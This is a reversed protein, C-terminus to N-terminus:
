LFPKQHYNSEESENKGSRVQRIPKSQPELSSCASTEMQQYNEVPRQSLSTQDRDHSTGNNQIVILCRSLEHRGDRGYRFMDRRAVDGSDLVGMHYLWSCAYVRVDCVMDHM